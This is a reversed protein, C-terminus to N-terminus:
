ASAVAYGALVDSRQYVDAAPGGKGRREGVRVVLGRDRWSDLYKQVTGRGGPLGAATAETGVDRYTFGDPLRKLVEWMARWAESEFPTGDPYTPVSRLHTGRWGAVPGPADEVPEGGGGPGPVIPPPAVFGARVSDVIRYREEAVIRHTRVRFPKRGPLGKLYGIGNFEDGVPIEHAPFQKAMGRGLITDVQEPTECRLALKMPVMDRIASPVITSEPKQTDYVGFVGVARGRAAIDRLKLIFKSRAKANDYNTFYALEGIFLAICDLEMEEALERTLETARYEKLLDAREGIHEQLAELFGIAAAMDPGCHQHAVDEFIVLERGSGDITWLECDVAQAVHCLPAAVANSKGSGPSGAVLIGPTGALIVTVEAGDDDVGLQMPDWISVSRGPAEVAPHAGPRPLEAVPVNNVSFVVQHSGRGQTLTLGGAVIRLTAAIQEQRAKVSRFAVAAPLDVTLTWRDGSPVSPADNVVAGPFGNVALAHVVELSLPHQGTGNPPPTFYLPQATSHALKAVARIRETERAHGTARAQHIAAAHAITGGFTAVIGAVWSGASLAGLWVTAGVATLTLAMGFATGIIKGAHGAFDAAADSPSSPNSIAALSGIGTGASFALGLGLGIGGALAHHPLLHVLSACGEAVAVVLPTLLVAKYALAGEVMGAVAQEAIRRPYHEIPSVAPPLPLLQELVHMQHSTLPARQAPIRGYGAPIHDHPGSM